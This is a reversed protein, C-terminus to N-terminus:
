QRCTFQSSFLTLNGIYFLKVVTLVLNISLFLEDVV